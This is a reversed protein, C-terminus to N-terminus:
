TRYTLPRSAERANEHLHSLYRHFVGTRYFLHVLFPPAPQHDSGGSVYSM